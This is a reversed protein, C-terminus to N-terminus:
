VDSGLASQGLARVDRIPPAGFLRRYERSFQSPSEYGVRFAATGADVEGAGLLRRAEQLRLQKQLQLPAMGATAKLEHRLGSVSMGSMKALAAIDIPEDFHARLWAIAKGVGLHVPRVSRYISPGHESGLLRFAIERRVAGALFTAAGEPEDLLRVLRVFCEFLRGSAHGVFVAPGPSAPRRALDIGADIVVAALEAAPLAIRLALYPRAASAETIEGSAPFDIASMVYSGAGYAYTERGVHLRKGGQVVLCLSPELVGHRTPTPRTSRIFSLFPIASATTGDEQARRAVLRALDEQTVRESALETAKGMASWGLPVGPASNTPDHLLRAQDQV